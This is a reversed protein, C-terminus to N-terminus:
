SMEAFSGVLVGPVNEIVTINTGSKVQLAVGHFLTPATDFTQRISFSIGVKTIGDLVSQVQDRTRM